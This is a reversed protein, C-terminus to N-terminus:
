KHKTSLSGGLRNENVELFGEDIGIATAARIGEGTRDAIFHLCGAIRAAKRRLFAQAPPAVTPNSVNPAVRPAVGATQNTEALAPLAAAPVAAVVVAVRILLCRRSLNSIFNRGTM